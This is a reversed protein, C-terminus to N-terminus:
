VIIVVYQKAEEIFLHVSFVGLEKVIRRMLWESIIVASCITNYWPKGSVWKQLKKENKWWNQEDLSMDLREAKHSDQKLCKALKGKQKWIRIWDASLM